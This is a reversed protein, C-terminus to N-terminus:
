ESKFLFKASIGLQPFIAVFLVVIGMGGLWHTFCRWFHIGHSAIGDCVGDDCFMDPSDFVTAGTTTLGSIAEFFADAPHTLVGDFMYPLGGIAGTLLWSVAVVVLAERRFITSGAKRGWWRLGGGICIAIAIAGAFSLVTSWEGYLVAVFLSLAMSLGFFVTLTGLLKAIRHFNM